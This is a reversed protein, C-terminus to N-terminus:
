TTAQSRSSTKAPDAAPPPLASAAPMRMPGPRTSSRSGTTRGPRSRVRVGSREHAAEARRGAAAARVRPGPCQLGRRVWRSRRERRPANTRQVAQPAGGAPVRTARVDDARRARPVPDRKGAASAVDVNWIKGEGWIVIHRSDPTWGYQTYVGYIAWTEQLDRDLRDFIQREEGSQLSRVFLVSKGGVRRVFSLWQGDPSVRPAISGGAESVAPREKGNTLDRRIIAYIVDYPNKNYEFTQGPTVDKSYYLYKGDPSAAPEGADKQWGNKETVQLGDGGSVHYMWIEGSGGSRQKVFHRRGYLFQSDPAWTPSNVYWQKEKSVQRAGSGDPKMVWLNMLGDRDSSFGIWQGDPSFRPQMDFAAGSTLREALGTGTGELPMVYLDGLIDFVVRKGDPSVDVNLWTGETTEFSVKKAPGLPQGIDWDKKEDKADKDAKADPAQPKADPTQRASLPIFTAAAVLAASVTRLLQRRM